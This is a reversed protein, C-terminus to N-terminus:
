SVNARLPVVKREGGEVLARVHDAWLGLASRMEAEYTSRNYIGAVGRKHGSQHNLAAEIVHPAVGLDAMGTAVTRRLDHLGWPKVSNGLRSDLSVKALHWGAFGQNARDGFLLDRDTRHLVEDIIAWAVAPLPLAHARHNKTRTGPIIWLGRERDFEDWTMGGVEQRRCGTLILLRVIRGLDDDGCAHWVAALESDNLVRDRSPAADPAYAGILPNHQAVGTRMAWVFMASLASRAATATAVGSEREIRMVQAAVHQREIVDIPMAHLAGFYTPGTLYRRVEFMARPRLKGDRAALYEAIVSRLTVKAQQRKRRREGQPDDGTLVRALLVRAAKRAEAVTMVAANGITTRRTQGDIRYQVIWTRRGGVRLRLGFGPLDDDFHIM